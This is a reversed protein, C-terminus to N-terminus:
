FPVMAQRGKDSAKWTVWTVAQLEHPLVGVEAAVDRYAQEALRRGRSGRHPATERLGQESYGAAIDIAHTDICVDTANGGDRLLRYFPVVKPGSLVLDPHKGM